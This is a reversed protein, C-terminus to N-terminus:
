SVFHNWADFDTMLLWRMLLLMCSLVIYVNKTKPAKDKKKAIKDKQNMQM